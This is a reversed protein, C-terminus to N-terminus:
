QVRVFDPGSLDYQFEGLPVAAGFLPARLLTSGFDFIRWGEPYRFAIYAHVYESGEFEYVCLGEWVEEPGYIAYFRAYDPAADEPEYRYIGKLELGALRSPDYRAILEDVPMAEGDEIELAGDRLDHMAVDPFGPRILLSSIFAAIGEADGRLALAENLGDYAAYDSPLPMDLTIVYGQIWEMMEAMDYAEAGVSASMCGLAGEFDADAVCEAFAEVAAEPTAFFADRPAQEISGYSFVLTAAVFFSFLANMGIGGREV